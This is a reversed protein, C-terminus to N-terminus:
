TAEPAFNQRWQPAARSTVFASAAGGPPVSAAPWFCPIQEAQEAGTGSPAEKQREHPSRWGSVALSAEAVACGGGGGGLAGGGGAGDM